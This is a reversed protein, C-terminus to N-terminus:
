DLQAAFFATVLTAFAKAGDVHSWHGAGPLLHLHSRTLHRHLELSAEPPVLVDRAGHLLLAPVELQRLQELDAPHIAPGIIMTRFADRAGPALARQCRERAIEGVPRPLNGPDHVFLTILESMVEVTPNAYFDLVKATQMGTGVAAVGGGGMVVIRRCVHPAMSALHLLTSGGGRSNGIFFARELGLADLLGLLHQARYRAWERADAPLPSPMETQGFGPLDPAFCRYTRGLRRLMDTWNIAANVGPGAGHLLVVPEGSGCALVQTRLGGASVVIEELAPTTM